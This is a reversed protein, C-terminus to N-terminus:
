GDSAWHFMAHVAFPSGPEVIRPALNFEDPPGSQPEVCVAHEPDTYVVICPCDTTITLTAAGPWRLVAAPEGLDTFCDDWPPPVVPVVEGSPIGEGDVRYMRDAHLEVELPEGRDLYRSWWPHWGCSVPMARETAHVEMTLALQGPELAFRQVVRGGFPWPDTLAVSLVASSADRDEVTWAVDRVTGHIAHPPKNLPLQYQEDDYTFAGHRVRGAWPAMPFIGHNHDDIEPPVVLALDGVELHLVRGGGDPDVVLRADGATLEIV